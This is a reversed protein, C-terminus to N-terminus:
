SYSELKDLFAQHACLNCHRECGTQSRPCTERNGEVAESKWTVFDNDKLAPLRKVTQMDLLTTDYYLSVDFFIPQDANAAIVVTM